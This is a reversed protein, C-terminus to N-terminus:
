KARKVLTEVTWASGSGRAASNAAEPAGFGVHGEYMASKPATKMSKLREIVVDYPQELCTVAVVLEKLHAVSMGETHKVWQALPYKTVDAGLLHVLYQERAIASPFGIKVVEDFRSPRNVIRAGLQEPYNTTAINVVNDTQHEGDLLALLNHEGHAGIIEEVDELIVILPRVPEVRRLIPLARTAVDPNQVLLVIGGMEILDEVLLAVTATKGSGAPGWLLVGRKFLIGRAEYKDKMRWFKRIGEIVKLSNSEGLDILTDTLIRKQVFVARGDDTLGVTYAGPELKPKTTGTAIFVGNPLVEWQCHERIDKMGSGKISTEGPQAPPQRNTRGSPKALLEQLETNESM